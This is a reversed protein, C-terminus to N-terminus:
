GGIGDDGRSRLAADHEDVALHFLLKRRHVTHLVSPAVLSVPSSYYRLPHAVRSSGPTSAHACRPAAAHADPQRACRVEKELLWVFVGSGSCTMVWASTLAAQTEPWLM